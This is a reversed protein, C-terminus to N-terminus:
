ERAANITDNGGCLADRTTPLAELDPCSLVAEICESSGAIYTCVLDVDTAVCWARDEPWWIDPSWGLHLLGGSAFSMVSDLSGRFLLYGREPARVRSDARYLREDIYGNGEWICFWCREPTSTFQRLVNVLARCEAEPTSGGGPHSGWSPDPYARERSLNAIGEFDMLPHATRGNWAAVTSWRVPQGSDEMYAPHFVRAHAPFGSPLLSSVKPFDVLSEEVWRAPSVDESFEVSHPTAQKGQGSFGM